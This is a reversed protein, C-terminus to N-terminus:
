KISASKNNKFQINKLKGIIKNKNVAITVASGIILASTTLLLGGFFANKILKM